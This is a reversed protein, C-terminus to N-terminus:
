ALALTAPVKLVSKLIELMRRNIAADKVAIRLVHEGLSTGMSGVDRVFLGRTRADRAVKAAAPGDDPLHCLLFNAVGPVVEIGLAEIGVRLDARLTATEMWRAAYYEESKLAECAAIQAPLSVSWPPCLPRLEDIMNLAGCLYAARVGSLAYAKSMSKCVVVNNSAAAFAELSHNAGVYDVYTEDIWFRTTRPARGILTELVRRPVHRGTPSNPNVLVVWDYGRALVNSLRDPQIDYRDARDLRVRDVHSGIVRELLHAYEGYMPDLILVRSRNTVWTRLGAFILDSSGAGPLVADDPVGRYRAIVRQMGECNTPPSTKLAFPLCSQLQEIVAPAPDFWADLVDANIISHRLELADLEVGIGDWFAGGHYCVAQRDTSGRHSTTM